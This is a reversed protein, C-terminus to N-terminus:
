AGETPPKTTLGIPHYPPAEKPPILNNRHGLIAIRAGRAKAVGKVRRHFTKTDEDPAAVFHAGGIMAERDSGMPYGLKTFEPSGIVVVLKVDGPRELRQARALM